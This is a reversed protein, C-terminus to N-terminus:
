CLLACPKQKSVAAPEPRRPSGRLALVRRHHPGAGALHRAVPELPPLVPLLGDLVFGVGPAGIKQFM